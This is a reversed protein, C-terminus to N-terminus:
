DKPFFYYNMFKKEVIIANSIDAPKGGARRSYAEIRFNRYQLNKSLWTNYYNEIDKKLSDDGWHIIDTDTILILGYPSKKRWIGYGNKLEPTDSMFYISDPDILSLYFLFSSREQKNLGSLKVNLEEVPQARKVLAGLMQINKKYDAIISSLGTFTLFRVPLVAKGSLMEGKREFFMLMELGHTLLPIVITGGEAIQDFWPIDPTACTSIISNFPAKEIFGKGGDATIVKINKNLKSINTMAIKTIEPDIEITTIKDEGVIESIISANYGSGTGIELVNHGSKINSIEIMYLILSPQSCTSLVEGAGKFAIPLPRDQYIIRLQEETPNEPDLLAKVQKKETEDYSFLAPIFFHRPVNCFAKKNQPKVSTKFVRRFKDWVAEELSDRYKKIMEEM